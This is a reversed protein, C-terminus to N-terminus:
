LNRKLMSDFSKCSMRYVIYEYLRQNISFLRNIHMHILSPLLNNTFNPSVIWTKDIKTERLEHHYNLLFSLIKSSIKRYEDNIIKIQQISLGFEKRYRNDMDSLYNKIKNDDMYLSFLLSFIWEITLYIMDIDTGNYKILDLVNCSDEFFFNECNVMNDAGYREIERHYSDIKIDSVIGNELDDTLKVRLNSIVLGLYYTEKLEVRVRLHHVPDAYRIYFWKDIIREDIWQSMLPKIKDLLINNTSMPACYIKFYVWRDGPYFIRQIM